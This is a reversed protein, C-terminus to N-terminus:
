IEAKRSYVKTASILVSGVMMWHTRLETTLSESQEGGTGPHAPRLSFQVSGPAFYATAKELDRGTVAANFATVVAAADAADKGGTASWAAPSFLVTALAATTALRIWPFM